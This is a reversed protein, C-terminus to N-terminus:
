QDLDMLMSHESQNPDDIMIGYLCLELCGFGGILPM